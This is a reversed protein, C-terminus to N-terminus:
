YAKVAMSTTTNIWTVGCKDVRGNSPSAADLFLKDNVNHAVLPCVEGNYKAYGVCIGVHTNLGPLAKADPRIIYEWDSSEQQDEKILSEELSSDATGGFHDSANFPKGTLTHIFHYSVGKKNRSSEGDVNASLPYIKARPWFNPSNPKAAQNTASEYFARTAYATSPWELGVINGPKMKMVDSAPLNLSALVHKVRINPTTNKGSVMENFCEELAARHTSVDQLNSIFKEPRVHNYGHWASNLHQRGSVGANASFRNVWQACAKTGAAGIFSTGNEFIEDVVEAFDKDQANILKMFTQSVILDKRSLVSEPRGAFDQGTVVAPISVDIGILSLIHQAVEPTLVAESAPNIRRVANQTMGGWSAVASDANPVVGLVVQTLMVAERREDSSIDSNGSIALEPNKVLKRLYEEGYSFEENYNRASEGLYNKILRNLRSRRILM